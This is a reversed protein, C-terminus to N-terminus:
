WDLEAIAGVAFILVPEIQKAAEAMRDVYESERDIGMLENEEESHGYLQIWWAGTIKAHVDGYHDDLSRMEPTKYYQM